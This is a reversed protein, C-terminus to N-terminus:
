DIWGGGLVMDDDYFVAAQGPTIAIQPEDFQVNVKENGVPEVVAPAAKHQYRIKVDARIPQSPRDTLWQVKSATLSDASLDLKSGVTVTQTGVNIGCVYAPKGLAIGLGRRQGITFNFVGDHEGV